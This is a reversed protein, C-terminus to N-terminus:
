LGYAGIGHRRYLSGRAWRCLLLAAALQGGVSGAHRLNERLLHGSAVAIRASKAMTVAQYARLAM